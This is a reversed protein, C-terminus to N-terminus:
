RGKFRGQVAKSVKKFFTFVKYVNYKLQTRILIWIEANQTLRGASDM